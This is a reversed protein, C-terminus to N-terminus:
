GIMAAIKESTIEATSNADVKFDAQNYREKRLDFLLKIKLEPDSANLLPRNQTQNSLRELIIERTVELYILIGAKKINELNDFFAITGGGLSIVTNNKVTKIIAQVKKRETERFSGEGETEFIERVTKRNELEIMEDLDIFDYGLKQALIKGTTTKGSGPM